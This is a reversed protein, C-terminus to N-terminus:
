FRSPSVAASLIWGRAAFVESLEETLLAFHEKDSPKGGLDEAGAIFMTCVIHSVERNFQLAILCMDTVRCAAM